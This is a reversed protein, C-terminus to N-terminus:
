LKHFFIVLHWTYPLLGWSPLLFGHLYPWCGTRKKNNNELRVCDRWRQVLWCCCTLLMRGLLKNQDFNRFQIGYRAGILFVSRIDEQRNEKERSNISFFFFGQSTPHGDSNYDSERNRYNRMPPPRIRGESFVCTKRRGRQFTVDESTVSNFVFQVSKEKSLTRTRM